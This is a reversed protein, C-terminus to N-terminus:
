YNSKLATLKEDATVVEQRNLGVLTTEGLNQQSEDKFDYGAMDENEFMRNNLVEEAEEIKLVAGKWPSRIFEFVVLSILLQCVLLSVLYLTATNDIICQLVTITIVQFLLIASLTCKILIKRNMIQSEFDIPYVFFLNYKDFAYTIAFLIACIPMALPILISCGLGMTFMTVALVNRLGLDYLYHKFKNRGTVMFSSLFAKLIVRSDCQYQVWIVAM